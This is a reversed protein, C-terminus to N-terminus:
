VVQATAEPVSWLRMAGHAYLEACFIWHSHSTTVMRTSLHYTHSFYVFVGHSVHHSM